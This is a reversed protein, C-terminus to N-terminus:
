KKTLLEECVTRGKPTLAIYVPKGKPNLEKVYGEELILALHRMAAVHSINEEGAIKNLFCPKEDKDCRSIFLIIRRRVEAGKSWYFLISKM